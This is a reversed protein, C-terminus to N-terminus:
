SLIDFVNPDPGMRRAPGLGTIEAIETETLTFDLAGLNEAMRHGHTSKPIAIDGRQLHWRLIVQAATRSHRAAIAAINPDALIGARGLPSWAETAIGHDANFARLDDQPLFPHVEIQNVAPITGTESLIRRLHEREFNSVGIARARGTRYVDEVGRWTDVFNCVTPLPWHVLYLDVFDLGLEDLSQEFGATVDERRYRATRLKTTIFIEDRPLGSGRIADGVGRENGYMAATDIHRYGLALAEAVAASTEYPPIKFVGFGLQPVEVGNNLVVSPIATM